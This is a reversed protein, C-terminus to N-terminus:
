FWDFYKSTSGFRRVPTICCVLFHLVQQFLFLGFSSWLSKKAGPSILGTVMYRMKSACTPSKVNGVSIHDFMDTIIAFIPIPPRKTSLKKILELPDETPPM